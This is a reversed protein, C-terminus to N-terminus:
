PLLDMEFLDAVKAVTRADAIRIADQDKAHILEQGYTHLIESLSLIEMRSMRKRDAVKPQSM